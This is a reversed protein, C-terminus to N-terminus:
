RVHQRKVAAIARAMARVNGAAPHPPAPEVEGRSEGIEFSYAQTVQEALSLIGPGPFRPLFRTLFLRLLRAFSKRRAESALLYRWKRQALLLVFGLTHGIM